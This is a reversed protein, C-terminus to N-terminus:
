VVIIAKNLIFSIPKEPDKYTQKKSHPGAQLDWIQSM